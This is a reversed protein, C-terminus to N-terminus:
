KTDRCIDLNGLNKIIAPVLQPAVALYFLINPHVGFKAEKDRAIKALKAYDEAKTVDMPLYSMHRSFNQWSENVDNRRSFNDIGEKLHAEYEGSGYESRAIGVICFKEPMADDLFLNYLAPSLKRYNLDGSGGFIFVLMPSIKKYDLM